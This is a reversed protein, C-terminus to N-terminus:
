RRAPFSQDEPDDPLAYQPGRTSKRSPDVQPRVRQPPLNDLPVSRRKFTRPAADKPYMIEYGATAHGGKEYMRGIDLLCAEYLALIDDALARREKASLLDFRFWAGQDERVAIRASSINERRHKLRDPWGRYIILRRTARDFRERPGTGKEQPGLGLALLEKVAVRLSNLQAIPDDWGLRYDDMQLEMKM